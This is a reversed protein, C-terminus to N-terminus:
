NSLAKKINAVNTKFIQAYTVGEKAQDSTINHYGHLELLEIAYNEKALEAKILNAMRPEALEEIFLFHANSEKIEDIFAVVTPSLFDVDPKYKESLSHIEFHFEAAFDELANHGAFFVKPNTVGSLFTRLETISEQITAAYEDHKQEFYTSNATDIEKIRPLLASFVELYYKPNTFFHVGAHDHGHDHDDHEDHGHDDDRTYHESMAFANENNVLTNVWTDLEPSTYVFLKSENIAVVDRPSPEFGHLESGWPVINKITLKDGAINKAADYSVFSSTVIDAKADTSCGALALLPILLLLKHKM